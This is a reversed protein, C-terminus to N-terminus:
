ASHLASLTSRFFSGAADGIEFSVSPSYRLVPRSRLMSRQKWSRQISDAVSGLLVPDHVEEDDIFVRIFEAPCASVSLGLAVPGKRKREPNSRTILLRGISDGHKDIGFMDLLWNPQKALAYDLSAALSKSEGELLPARWKTEPHSGSRAAARLFLVSVAQVAPTWQFSGFGDYAGSTKGRVALAEGELLPHGFVTKKFSRDVEAM